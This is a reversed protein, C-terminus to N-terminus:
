GLVKLVSRSELLEFDPSAIRFAVQLKQFTKSFEHNLDEEM